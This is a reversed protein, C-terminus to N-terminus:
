RGFNLAEERRGFLPSSLEKIVEQSVFLGHAARQTDWWERSTQLRTVSKPDTRDTVCASIFSADLYVTAM